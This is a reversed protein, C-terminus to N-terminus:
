TTQVATALLLSTEADRQKFQQQSCCLRQPTVNNSSSNRAASVNRRRTTQVATALLLTTAVDRQKCRHHPVGCLHWVTKRLPRHLGHHFCDVVDEFFAHGPATQENLHQTRHSPLAPHSDPATTEFPVRQEETPVNSAVSNCKPFHM